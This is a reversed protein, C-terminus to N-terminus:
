CTLIIAISSIFMTGVFIISGYKEFFSKEIKKTPLSVKLCCFDCDCISNEIPTKTEIDSYFGWDHHFSNMRVATKKYEDFSISSKTLRKM